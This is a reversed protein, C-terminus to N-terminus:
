SSTPLAIALPALRLVMLAILWRIAKESDADSGLMEAVYRIPASEVEVQRGSAAVTARETQLTALTAAERKREAVLAARAKRQGEMASLSVNIKGRKASEEVASDM